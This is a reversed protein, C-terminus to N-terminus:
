AKIKLFPLIIGSKYMKISFEWLLKGITQTCSQYLREEREKENKVMLIEM